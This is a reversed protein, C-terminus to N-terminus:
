LLEEVYYWSQPAKTLSKIECCQSCLGYDNECKGYPCKDCKKYFVWHKFESLERPRDFIALNSIHWAYGTKYQLYDCLETYTLKCGCELENNWQKQRKSFPMEEVKNLTFKAVVKGNYYKRKEFLNGYPTGYLVYPCDLHEKGYYPKSKVYEIAKNLEAPVVCCRGENDSWDSEFLYPNDKTCYIYVDIPLDCKPMSKRVEITKKHNLIDAVYCPKISILISKAMKLYGGKSEVILM